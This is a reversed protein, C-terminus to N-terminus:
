ALGSEVGCDSPHAASHHARLQEPHELMAPAPFFGAAIVFAVVPFLRMIRRYRIPESATQEVTVVDIRNAEGRSNTVSSSWGAESRTRAVSENSLGVTM